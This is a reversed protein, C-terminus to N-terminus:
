RNRMQAQEEKSYGLETLISETSEGREQAPQYCQEEGSFVIPSRFQLVEGDGVSRRLILERDQQHADELVEDLSLVPEVCCDLPRFIDMWEEKTRSKLIKIIESKVKVDTVSKQAFDERGIGQCFATWFKPELAGVSLFEGDKTEYFDYCSGGNLLEENRRPAKGGALYSAGALSNFPLLGDYMSIDIACGKGTVERHYAAMAIGAVANMSGVALDAIQMGYLVPRDVGSHSLLGSRALYNIDHGARLADCGKQGYGTISCYILQPFEEKLDEYSLGFKAMVGPRFQEVIIDYGKGILAKIAEQSREQKLDLELTKKNRNLWAGCGNITKTLKPEMELVLDKKGPAFVSLIDAGYDGLMMTAYPGPLLTTFDLIKLKELM